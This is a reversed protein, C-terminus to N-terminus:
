YTKDDAFWVGMLPEKVTSLRFLLGGRQKSSLFHAFDFQLQCLPGPTTPRHFLDGYSGSKISARNAWKM